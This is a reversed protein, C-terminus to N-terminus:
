KQYPNANASWTLLTSDRVTVPSQPPVKYYPDGKDFGKSLLQLKGSAYVTIQTYGFFTADGSSGGHGAIVQYTGEGGPQMRQYDHVHASLMAAVRSNKLEPWLKPGEPLGEHGTEPANNVYYPKHGLVFIHDIGPTERYTKIKNLIWQTPILGEMGKPHETTPVNYTDTNMVIFATNHRTFSFTAQNVLSDTDRVQERDDPLYPEMHKMWVKTAGQRPYEKNDSTDFYLMEHNGPVAVLEIGSTSLPSFATNKYLAVWAKLESDLDATTNLGMVMDGLFFFLEPKNKENAISKFITKLVAVNATSSDTAEPNKRDGYDVRNCGVFAFRFLVSDKEVAASVTKEKTKNGSNCSSILLLFLLYLTSHYTKM